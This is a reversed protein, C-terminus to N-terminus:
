LEVLQLMVLTNPFYGRTDFHILTHYTLSITTSNRIRLPMLIIHMVMLLGYVLSFTPKHHPGRAKNLIKAGVM